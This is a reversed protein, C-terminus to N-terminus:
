DNEKNIVEKFLNMLSESPIKDGNSYKFYEIFLSTLDQTEDITLLKSKDEETADKDLILKPIINVIKDHEVALTKRLQADLFTNTQITLEVYKDQNERLWNVAEELESFEGRLLGFGKTLEIPSYIAPKGPELDILVVQKKQNAEAFSYSLPSSSYVIPCPKTDVRHYRHLHGLAVYQM